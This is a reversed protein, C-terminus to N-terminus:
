SGWGGSPTEVTFTDGQEVGHTKAFEQEVLAGAGSPKAILANTGGEKWQFRYVDQFQVPDVGHITDTTGNVSRGNVQIRDVWQPSGSRVGAVNAIMPGAGAPLPEFNESTAVYDGNILQDMDGSLTAKLGSAFVAVFVVLGLGVMLAASTSATRAPNRQANERALRGPVGFLREIPWGMAAAYLQGEAKAVGAVARVPRWGGLRGEPFAPLLCYVSPPVLWTALRGITYPVSPSTEALATV